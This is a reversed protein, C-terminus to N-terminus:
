LREATCEGFPGKGSGAGLSDPPPIGRAALQCEAVPQLGSRGDITVNICNPKPCQPPPAFYGLKVAAREQDAKTSKRGKWGRRYLEALIVKRPWNSWIFYPVPNAASAEKSMPPPPPLNRDIGGGATCRAAGQSDKTRVGRCAAWCPIRQLLQELDGHFQFAEPRAYELRCLRCWQSASRLGNRATREAIDSLSKEAVSGCRPRRPKPPASPRQRRGAVVLTAEASRDDASEAPPAPYEEAGECFAPGQRPVSEGHVPQLRM